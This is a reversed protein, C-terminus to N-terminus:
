IQKFRITDMLRFFTMIGFKQGIHGNLTSNIYLPNIPFASYIGSWSASM